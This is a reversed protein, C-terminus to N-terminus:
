VVATRLPSALPTFARSASAPKHLGLPYFQPPLSGPCVVPPCRCTVLRHPKKRPSVGSSRLGSTAAPHFLGAVDTSSYATSSTLFTSSPVFRAQSARPATGFSLSAGRLLSRRNHRSPALFGLSPAQLRFAYQAPTIELSEAPSPLRVLPHGRNSLNSPVATPPVGRLRAPFPSTLTPGPL